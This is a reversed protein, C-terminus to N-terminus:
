SFDYLKAIIAQISKLYSLNSILAPVKQGGGRGGPLIPNLQLLSVLYLPPFNPVQTANETSTETVPITKRPYTTTPRQPNGISRKPAVPSLLYILCKHLGTSEDKFLSHLMFSNCLWVFNPHDFNQLGM